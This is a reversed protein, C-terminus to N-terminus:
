LGSKWKRWIISYFCIMNEEWKVFGRLSLIIDILICIMEWNFGKIIEWDNNKEM